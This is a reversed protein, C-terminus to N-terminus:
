DNKGHLSAFRSGCLKTWRLWCSMQLRLYWRRKWLNSWKSLSQERMCRIFSLNLTLDSVLKITCQQRERLSCYTPLIGESFMIVFRHSWRLSKFRRCDQKTGSYSCVISIYNNCVFMKYLFNHIGHCSEKGPKYCYGSEGGFDPSCQCEVIVEAVFISINLIEKSKSFRLGFQDTLSHTCTM